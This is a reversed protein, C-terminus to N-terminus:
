LGFSNRSALTIIPHHTMLLIGTYYDAIVLKLRGELDHGEERAV